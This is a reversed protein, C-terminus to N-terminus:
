HVTPAAPPHGWSACLAAYSVEGRGTQLQMGLYTVGADNLAKARDALLLNDVMNRVAAEIQVSAMRHLLEQTKDIPQVGAAREVDPDLHLMGTEIADNLEHDNMRNINKVSHSRGVDVGIINPPEQMYLKRLDGGCDKALEEYYEKPYDM